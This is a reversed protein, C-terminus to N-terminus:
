RGALPRKETQMGTFFANKGKSKGCSPMKAERLSGTKEAKGCPTQKKQSEALLRSRGAEGLPNAEEAKGCPTQKKQSEALLRSRGVDGM